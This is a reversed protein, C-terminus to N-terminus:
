KKEVVKHIFYHSLGTIPIIPLLYAFHYWVPYDAWVRFFHIYAAICFITLGVFWAAKGKDNAMKKAVIGALVAALIGISLRSLLMASSYSKDRAAIRYAPWCKLLLFLGFSGIMAYVIFGSLIGYLTKKGASNNTL